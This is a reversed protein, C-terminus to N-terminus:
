YHEVMESGTAHGAQAELDRLDAGNNAMEVTSGVKASHLGFKYPNRGISDLAAKFKDYFKVYLM